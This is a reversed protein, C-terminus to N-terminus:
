IYIYLCRHRITSHGTRENSLRISGEDVEHPTPQSALQVSALVAAQNISVPQQKQHRRDLMEGDEYAHFGGTPESVGTKRPPLTGPAAGQVGGAHPGPKGTGANPRATPAWESYNGSASDTTASGDAQPPPTM